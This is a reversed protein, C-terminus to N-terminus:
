DANCQNSSTAQGQNRAVYEAQMSVNQLRIFTCRNSVAPCNVGMMRDVALADGSRDCLSRRPVQIRM